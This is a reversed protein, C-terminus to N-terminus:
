KAEFEGEKVGAVFAKWEAQNFTLIPSNADKSDRVLIESDQMAVEVCPGSEGCYTSKRWVTTTEKRSPTNKAM